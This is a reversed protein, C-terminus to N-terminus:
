RLSSHFYLSNEGGGRRVHMYGEQNGTDGWCVTCKNCETFRCHCPIIGLTQEDKINYMKHIKVFTDGITTVCLITRSSKQARNM